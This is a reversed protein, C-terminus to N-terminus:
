GRSRTAKFAESWAKSRRLAEELQGGDMQAKIFEFANRIRSRLKTDGERQAFSRALDVWMMGEVLDQEIGDGGAINVGLNLMAPAYGQEAAKRYWENALKRDQRIGLGRDYLFGLNDAATASGKAAAKSYLSFAKGFDKTVGDGTQYRSGLENMAAVDGTASKRTLEAVANSSDVQPTLIGGQVQPGAGETSDQVDACGALFAASIL